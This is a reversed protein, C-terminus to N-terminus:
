VFQGPKLKEVTELPSDSGFPVQQAFAAGSLAAAGVLATVLKM